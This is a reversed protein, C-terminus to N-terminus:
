GLTIRGLYLKLLCGTNKWDVERLHQPLDSGDTQENRHDPTHDVRFRM